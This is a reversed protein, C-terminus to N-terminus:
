SEPIVQSLPSIYHVSSLIYYVIIYNHHLQICANSVTYRTKELPFNKVFKVFQNGNTFIKGEFYKSSSVSIAGNFYKFRTVIITISDIKGLELPDNALETGNNHISATLLATFSIAYTDHTNNFREQLCPLTSGSWIEKYVYCGRVVSEVEYSEM